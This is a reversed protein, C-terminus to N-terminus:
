AVDSIHQLAAAIGGLRSYSEDVTALLGVCAHKSQVHKTTCGRGKRGCNLKGYFIEGRPNSWLM